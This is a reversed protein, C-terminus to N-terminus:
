GTPSGTSIARHLDSVIPGADPRSGAARRRLARRIRLRHRRRAPPATRPRRAVPSAEPCSSPTQRKM